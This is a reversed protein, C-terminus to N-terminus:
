EAAVTETKDKVRYRVAVGLEGVKPQFLVLRNWKAKMKPPTYNREWKADKIWAPMSENGDKEECGYKWFAYETTRVAFTLRPIITHVIKRRLDSARALEESTNKLAAYEGTFAPHDLEFEVARVTIKKEEGVKESKGWKKKSSKGTGTRVPFKVGAKELRDVEGKLFEAYEDLREILLKTQFYYQGYVQWRRNPHVFNKFIVRNETWLKRDRLFDNEKADPSFEICRWGDHWAGTVDVLMFSRPAGVSEEGTDLDKTIVNMDNIRVGFSFVDRNAFMSLVGGHRNDASIVREGERVESARRGKYKPINIVAKRDVLAFMFTALDLDTGQFVGDVDYAPGPKRSLLDYSWHSLVRDVVPMVDKKRDLITKVDTDDLVEKLTTAVTKM